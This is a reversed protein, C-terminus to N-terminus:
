TVGRRQRLVLLARDARQWRHTMRFFLGAGNAGGQNTAVYLMGDTGLAVPSDFFFGAGGLPTLGSGDPQLKFVGGFLTTGYLTGDPGQTLGAYPQNGDGGNFSHLVTYASGDPQVRFVTGAM